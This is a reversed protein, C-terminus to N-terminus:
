SSCSTRPSTRPPGSPSSRARQAHGRHPRLHAAGRRPPPLRLHGLRHEQPRPDGTGPDRDRQAGAGVHARRPHRDPVRPDDRRRAAGPRDRGDAPRRVVPRRRHGTPRGQRRGQGPDRGGGPQPHGLPVLRAPPTTRAPRIANMAINEAVSLNTLLSQEQHVVGFAPPPPTRRAASADGGQRRGGDRRLRARAPRHPDQAPDVQRCRERRDPRHGRGARIELSVDYRPSRGSRSPSTTLKLGSRRILTGRRRAQDSQRDETQQAAAVGGRHHGRDARRRVGRVPHESSVGSLILGNNLTTLLMVGLTTRLIGGKGGSLSTGGIVVAAITLFLIGVGVTASGAGIQISALVGAFRAAGAAVSSSSLGQSGPWRSATAAPSRRTTASRTPAGPSGPTGPSPPARRSWCCRSGSRTRCGSPSRTRGRRSTATAAPVPDTRHRVAPHGRRPRRVLGRPDRHVVAGQLRTHILGSM